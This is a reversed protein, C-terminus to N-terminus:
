IVKFAGEKTFSENCIRTQEKGTNLIHLAAVMEFQSKRRSKFRSCKVRTMLEKRQCAVNFHDTYERSHVIVM